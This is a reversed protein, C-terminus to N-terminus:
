AADIGIYHVRYTTTDPLRVDITDGDVISIVEAVQFRATTSQGTVVNSGVLVFFLLFVMLMTRKM